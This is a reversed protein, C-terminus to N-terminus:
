ETEEVTEPVSAERWLELAALDIDDEICTAPATEAETSEVVPLELTEM